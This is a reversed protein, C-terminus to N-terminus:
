EKSLFLVKEEARRKVLGPLEKLGGPQKAKTWKMFEEGAELIKGENLKKLLTSREFNKRGVNFVFSVLADFQNQSLEINVLVRVANEADMVDIKLLLDAMDKNIVMGPKVTKTHGYGITLIGAPDRYAELKLGEYKKILDLGKKSITKTSNPRIM